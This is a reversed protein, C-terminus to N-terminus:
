SLHFTAPRQPEFCMDLDFHVSCVLSPGNKSTSIIFFHVSNHRSACTSTFICLVGCTRAVKPRQLTTKHPLRLFNEVRGFTLLVHPNQPMQLFSPPRPVNSSSRCLHIQRPLRLVLSMNMLSTLLDPRKYFPSAGLHRRGGRNPPCQPSLSLSLSPSPSPSISPHISPYISIYISPSLGSESTAKARPHRNPFPKSPKSPKPPNPPNQLPNLTQFTKSPKSPKPPNSLWYFAM